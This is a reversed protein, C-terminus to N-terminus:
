WNGAAHAGTAMSRMLRISFPKHQQIDRFDAEITMVPRLEVALNGMRRNSGAHTHDAMFWMLCFPFRQKGFLDIVSTKLTMGPYCFLRMQDPAELASPMGEAASLLNNNLTFFFPQGTSRTMVRMTRSLCFKEPKRGTVPNIHAAVAM